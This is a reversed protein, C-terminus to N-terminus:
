EYRSVADRMRNAFDLGHHGWFAGISIPSNSSGSVNRRELVYTGFSENDLAPARRIVLTQEDRKEAEEDVIYEWDTETIKKPPVESSLSENKDSSTEHQMRERMSHEEAAEFGDALKSLESRKIKAREMTDGHIKVLFIPSGDQEYALTVLWWQVIDIDIGMQFTIQWVVMPESVYPESYSEDLDEIAENILAATLNSSIEELSRDETLSKIKEEFDDPLDDWNPEM